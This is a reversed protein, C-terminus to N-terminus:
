YFYKYFKFIKVKDTMNHLGQESSSLTTSIADTSSSDNPVFSTVTSTMKLRGGINVM